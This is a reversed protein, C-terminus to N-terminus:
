FGSQTKKTRVGCSSAVATGHVPNEVRGDEPDQRLVGRRAVDYRLTAYRLTAYRLADQIWPRIHKTPSILAVLSRWARGKQSLGRTHAAPGESAMRAGRRLSRSHLRHRSTIYIYIYIYIHIYTHIYTYIYIYIYMCLYMGVYMCVYMCVYYTLPQARVAHDARGQGVEQRQPEVADERRDEDGPPGRPPM